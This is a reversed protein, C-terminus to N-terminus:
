PTTVVMCTSLAGAPLSRIRSMALATWRGSAVAWHAGEHDREEVRPQVSAADQADAPSPSDIPM